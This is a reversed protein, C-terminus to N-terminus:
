AVFMSFSFSFSHSPSGPACVVDQRKRGTQGLWFSSCFFFFFPSASSCHEQRHTLMRNHEDDWALTLTDRVKLEDDSETMTAKKRVQRCADRTNGRLGQEKKKSLHSSIVDCCMRRRGIASAEERACITVFDRSCCHGERGFLTASTAGDGDGALTTARTGFLELRMYTLSKEVRPQMYILRCVCVSVKISGAQLAAQDVLVMLERM